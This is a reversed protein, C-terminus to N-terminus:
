YADVHYRNQAVLESYTTSRDAPIDLMAEIRGSLDVAMQLSGCVYVHAGKKLWQLFELRDEEIIDQVYTKDAGDRSFTTSLKDLIRKDKYELLEEEYLFDNHRRKDGWILWIKRRTKSVENEQLFARFPAIGTGVGILVVPIGPDEPLRFELNQYHKYPILENEALNEILETSGAGEHM